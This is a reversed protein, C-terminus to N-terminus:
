ILQATEWAYGKSELREEGDLRLTIRDNACLAVRWRTGWVCPHAGLTSSLLSGFDAANDCALTVTKATLSAVRMLLPGMALADGRRITIATM